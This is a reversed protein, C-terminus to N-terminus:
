TPLSWLAKACWGIDADAPRLLVVAALSALGLHSAVVVLVAHTPPPPPSLSFLNGSAWVEWKSFDWARFFAGDLEPHETSRTQLRVIYEALRDEERKITANELVAAAEHLGAGGLLSCILYNQGV